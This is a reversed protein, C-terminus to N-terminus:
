FSKIDINNQQLTHFIKKAFAVAHAGDGHLCVTEAVIPVANGSVATVTKAHIMQLVQQISADETEIMANAQTRPTLSGNDQYTRDAFVESVTKLGTKKAESISCSGSLGFLLLAADTEYVAKAIAAALTEDKAAMNYLAGHPKIHNIKAGLANAIKKLLFIQTAVLDYIERFSLHMETRGFNERDAFGPHAGISVNHQLALEVTRKMIEENGAHYGCAINASSIYPMLQADNALGEAMDCNLDIFM